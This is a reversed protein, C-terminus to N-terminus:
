LPVQNTQLGLDQSEVTAQKQALLAMLEERCSGPLQVQMRMRAREIPLKGKLEQMAQRM